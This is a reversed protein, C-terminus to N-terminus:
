RTSRRTRLSSTSPELGKREVLSRGCRLPPRLRDRRLELGRPRLRVARWWFVPCTNRSEPAHRKLVFGFSTAEGGALQYPSSELRASLSKYGGENSRMRERPCRPARLHAALAGRGARPPAHAGRFTPQRDAEPPLEEPKARSSEVVGHCALRASHFEYGGENSRM